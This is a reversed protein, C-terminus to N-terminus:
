MGPRELVTQDRERVPDHVHVLCCLLTPAVSFLSLTTTSAKSLPNCARRPSLQPYTEPRTSDVVRRLPSPQPTVPCFRGVASGKDSDSMNKAVDFNYAPQREGETSYRDGAPYSGYSMTAATAVGGRTGCFRRAGGSGEFIQFDFIRPSQSKAITRKEVM